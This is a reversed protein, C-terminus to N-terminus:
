KRFIYTYFLHFPISVAFKVLILGLFFNVPLNIVIAVEMLTWALGKFLHWGDTLFVLFTTSFPFRSGLIPDGNKYKNKWSLDPNWFQKNLRRFISSHYHHQLTDQVAVCIGALVLLLITM